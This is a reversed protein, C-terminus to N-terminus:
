PAALVDLLRDIFRLASCVAELRSALLTREASPDPDAEDLQADLWGALPLLLARQAVLLPEADLGARQSLVVKIL